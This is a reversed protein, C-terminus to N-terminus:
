LIDGAFPDFPKGALLREAFTLLRERVSDDIDPYWVPSTVVLCRWAFWPAVLGLLDRDGSATLYRDWFINWLERGANGFEGGNPTAKHAVLTFFLYNIALCTVDDAPDGAARRSCDLATFDTGDRFLINFPHFDGHIRRARDTRDKLRWRWAVAAQEIRCLRAGDAVPHGGPWSDAIGFLGEGSGITDRVHRTYDAAPRRQAHLMALYDALAAARELDRTPARALRCVLALDNAYPQGAVYDTLLWPEGAPLSVLQGGDDFTGVDLPRVHHPIARFDVAAEVLNALRDARRDHGHPDPRMTRLVADHTIPGDEGPEDWSVRLPRGYGHAKLGLGDDAGLPTLAVLRAHRCVHARLYREVADPAIRNPTAEPAPQQTVDYRRPFERKRTPCSLDAPASTTLPPTM